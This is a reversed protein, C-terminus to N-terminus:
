LDQSGDPSTGLLELTTKIVPWTTTTVQPDYLKGTIDMRVVALGLGETLSQLVSPEATALRKGRATLVLDINQTELDMLGSGKFAVAEGSLDFRDFLLERRRIFSDVFMQDFAFDTHETLKLVSLLKSLPSLKGVQMDTIQVKCRGIRSFSDGFHGSVNLSGSMKGTTYGNPGTPKAPTDALFQQLDVDEFGAQLLYQLSRGHLLKLELTAAVKGDYCDAVLNKTLWRQENANYNIDATLSTLSKGKIRLSEAVLLAHGGRFPTDTKYVGKTKVLANLETIAPSTNFNCNKFRAAGDFEITKEGDQANFVSLNDLELDFRGSPSLKSYYPWFPKPLAIGFREDFLIDNASVQFRGTSFSNDTLMMQGNIKIRPADPAIQINDSLNAVIDSFKVSNATIELSGTVNKMPYSFKELNLSNNLCDVTIKYDTLGSSSDKDLQATLNINGTPQLQLVLKNLAPSLQSFLDDNLQVQETKLLLRYGPFNSDRHMWLRGTLSLLGKGYQSSIDFDTHFVNKEDSLIAGLIPDLPIDDAEISVDYVLKDLGFSEIQGNLTIRRSNLQSVVNSVTVGHQDFLLTGTLNKLPYPFHQYAASAGLLKVALAKKEKGKPLRNVSHNIAVWGSPNFALWLKKSEPSLANYLDADLAVNDSTVQIQYQWDPGFDSCSGNFLLKVDKHRGSLNNIYLAKETFDIPGTLKEVSYPFERNCISVDRCYLEGLLISEGIRKFNGAANFDIDVRGTPHYQDFFKQSVTFAGLRKLFAPRELTITRVAPKEKSVFDRIRLRLSYNGNRDYLLEAAMRDIIWTKEFAPIDESSVGGAITVRGPKWSGELISRRFPDRSATVIKFSYADPYEKSPGLKADLPISASIKVQQDTIKSYRLVGRKLHIVPIRGSGSQPTKIRLAALNWRGTDLDQQANFVFDKVRIKKLKPELLLVSVISFRAYVKEAKLIAEDYEGQQHPKIQLDRILVAGNLKFKIAGTEVKAGTLEAIQALAIRRLARGTTFFMVWLLAVLILVKVLRSTKRHSRFFKKSRNAIAVM